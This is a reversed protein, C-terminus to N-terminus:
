ACFGLWERILIMIILKLLEVVKSSEFHRSSTMEQTSFKLVVLRVGGDGIRV